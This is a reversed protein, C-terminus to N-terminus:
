LKSKIQEFYLEYFKKKIEDRVRRFEHMIHVDTGTVKSPDEFGIHLRNKVKGTFLPCTENAHDCVTIVYDWTETLYTDLRVPTHRSIDVGAEQMVEVAKRNVQAAPETGASYVEMRNDFSQLFGHAIQSRCSNGTCIILIKMKGKNMDYTYSM